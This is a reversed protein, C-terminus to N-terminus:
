DVLVFRWQRKCLMAIAIPLAFRPKFAILGFVLGAWYPRKTVLLYYTATLILLLVSGKQCTTFNEILPMFLLSLPLLWSFLLCRRRGHLAGFSSVIAM